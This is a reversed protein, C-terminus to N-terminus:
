RTAGESRSLLKQLPFIIVSIMVLLIVNGATSLGYFGQTYQKYIISPMVDSAFGPGGSTMTWILEFSRLGGILSLIIVTNRSSATLPVTVYRLTQWRSAGDIQAAEYYNRDISTIGTIYIVTAISLGKWIDVAAVSFLALDRNSLWDVTSLGLASLALNIYGRTPHLIAKFAIGVAVMSILNPFFVIARLINRTRLKGTLYVAIFFALLVKVGSTLFAYIFTNNIGITLAYESFFMRYNDFGTFRASDFSWVTMSFYLSTFTPVIFFIVFIL